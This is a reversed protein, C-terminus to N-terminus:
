KARNRLYDALSMVPSPEAEKRSAQGSSGAVARIEVRGITVQIVPEAAADHGAAPPAGARPRQRRFPDFRDDATPVPAPLKPRLTESPVQM